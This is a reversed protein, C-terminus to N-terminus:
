SARMKGALLQSIRDFEEETNTHFESASGKSYAGNVRLRVFHDIEAMLLEYDISEARRIPLLVAARNGVLESPKLPKM